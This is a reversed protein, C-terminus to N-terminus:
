TLVGFLSFGSTFSGSHTGNAVGCNLLGGSSTFSVSNLNMSVQIGSEDGSGVNTYGFGSLGSQTNFITTCVVKNSGNLIQFEFGKSGEPCVGGSGSANPELYCGNANFTVSRGLSDSCGSLDVGVALASNSSTPEAEYHGAACSVTGMGKSAFTTASSQDGAVLLPYREAVFKGGELVIGSGLSSVATLDLAKGAKEASVTWGGSWSGDSHAGKSPCGYGGESTYAITTAGISIEVKDPSGSLNKFSAGSVGSQVPISLKCNTGGIKTELEIATCKTGGVGLTGSTESVASFSFSCNNAHFYKLHYPDECPLTTALSRSRHEMSGSFGLYCNFFQFSGLSFAQNGAGGSVSAPYEATGTTTNHAEFGAASASSAGLAATLALALVAALAVFKLRKVTGGKGAAM